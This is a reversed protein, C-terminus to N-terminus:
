NCVISTTRKGSIIARLRMQTFHTNAAENFLRGYETGGRFLRWSTTSATPADTRFVEGTPTSLNTGDVLLGVGNTQTGPAGIIAGNMPTQASTEYYGTAGIQNFINQGQVLIGASLSALLLESRLGPTKM